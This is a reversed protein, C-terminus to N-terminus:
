SVKEGEVAVDKECRFDLMSRHWGGATGFDVCIRMMNVPTSDHKHNALHFLLRGLLVRLHEGNKRRSTTALLEDEWGRSFLYELFAYCFVLHTSCLIM